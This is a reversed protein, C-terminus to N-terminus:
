ARERQGRHFATWGRTTTPAVEAIERFLAVRMLIDYTPKPHRKVEAFEGQALPGPKDLAFAEM